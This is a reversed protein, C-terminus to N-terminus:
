VKKAVSGHVSLGVHIAVSFLLRAGNRTILPAAGGVAYVAAAKLGTCVPSLTSLRWFQRCIPSLTSSKDGTKAVTSLVTVFRCCNSYKRTM